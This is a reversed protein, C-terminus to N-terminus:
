ITTNLLIWWHWVNKEIYECVNGHVEINQYRWVFDLLNSAKGGFGFINKIYFCNIQKERKSVTLKATLGVM